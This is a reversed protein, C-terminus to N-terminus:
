DYMGEDILYHWVLCLDGVEEVVLEESRIFGLLARGLAKTIVLKTELQYYRQLEERYEKPLNFQAWDLPQNTNTTM